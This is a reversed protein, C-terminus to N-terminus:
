NSDLTTAIILANETTSRRNADLTFSAKNKKIPGSLNFGFLEQKFEPRTASNLLASRSNLDQNNFQLFGGAHFTDTGARTFIEIRGFGPRDYEPSFPNSNSRIERISPKPQPNGGM